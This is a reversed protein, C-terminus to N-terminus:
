KRMEDATLGMKLNDPFKIAIRCPAASKECTGLVKDLAEDADKNIFASQSGISNLISSHRYLEQFM